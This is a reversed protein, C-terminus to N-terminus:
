KPVIEYAVRVLDVIKSGEIVGIGEDEIVYSSVVVTHTDTNYDTPVDGLAKLIQFGLFKIDTDINYLSIPITSNEDFSDEWPIDPYIANTLNLNSEKIKSVFAVKDFVMPGLILEGTAELLGDIVNSDIKILANM